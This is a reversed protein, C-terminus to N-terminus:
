KHLSVKRVALVGATKGFVRFDSIPLTINAREEEEESSLRKLCKVFLM